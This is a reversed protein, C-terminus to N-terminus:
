NEDIPLLLTVSTGFGNLGATITVVAKDGHLSSLRERVIRLGNGSGNPAISNKVQM